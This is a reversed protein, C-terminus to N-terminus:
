VLYVHWPRQLQVFQILGYVYCVEGLTVGAHCVTGLLCLSWVVCQKLQIYLLPLGQAVSWGGCVICQISLTDCRLGNCVALPAHYNHDHFEPDDPKWQSGDQDSHTEM